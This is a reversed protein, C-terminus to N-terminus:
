QTRSRASCSRSMYITAVGSAQRGISTRAPRLSSGSGSGEGAANPYKRAVATPLEVRGAGEAVDRVHQEHVRKLHRALDAKILQPLMTMRDKDGKGGRVMIQNITFDIDQIRLRCCELLRLGAGYLLYGMLRPMGDLRELVARVEDRTLVAPLREPRRARVVDDLWPVDLDLVSRYLFLLASLAQNQTSAAVNRRVALWTLYQTIEVAGMEAPHRKDHFLIYRRIWAVYAEETRRSYHRARIAARVRDLLRPKPPRGAERIVLRRSDGRPYAYHLAPTM